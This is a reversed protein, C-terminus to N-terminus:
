MLRPMKQNLLRVIGLSALLFGAIGVLAFHLKNNTKNKGQFMTYLGLITLGGGSIVRCPLCDDKKQEGSIGNRHKGNTMKDRGNIVETIKTIVM